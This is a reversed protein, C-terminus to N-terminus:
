HFVLPPEPHPTGNVPISIYFTSGEGLKSQCWVRGGHRRAISRVL